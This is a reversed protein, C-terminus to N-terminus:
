PLILDPVDQSQVVEPETNLLGHTNAVTQISSKSFFPWFRALSQLIGSSYIIGSILAIGITLPIWAFTLWILLNHIKFPSIAEDGPTDILAVVDRRTVRLPTYRYLLSIRAPSLYLVNTFLSLPNTYYSELSPTPKFNGVQAVLTQGPYNGHMMYEHISWASAPKGNVLWSANFTPDYLTWHGNVFAEVTVHTAWQDLPPARM